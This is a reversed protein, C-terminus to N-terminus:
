REEFTPALELDEGFYRKLMTEVAGEPIEITGTTTEVIYRQRYDAQHKERVNEVLQEKVVDFPLPGPEIRRNLRIIHYGYATQVPASIQGPRELAFAAEEFPAVMQGKQMEPYRGANTAKAPDESYEMVLDDFQAPDEALRIELESVLELAAEDPRTETSVLIHSVDLREESLFQEPNALYYEEAMAEYDAEPANEVVQAIWMRALEEEQKLALRDRVLPDQDFGEARADAAIQRARLLKQVLLNVREGDRIFAYRHVEPIEAFAADMDAQTIAQDGQIAFPSDDAFMLAPLLSLAVVPIFLPKM